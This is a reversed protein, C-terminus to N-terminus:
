QKYINEKKENEYFYSSMIKNATNKKGAIEVSVVLLIM